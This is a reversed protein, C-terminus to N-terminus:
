VLEVLQKTTMVPDGSDRKEVIRRAIRRSFREEGYLYIINAIEDQSLTALLEAATPEDSDADMRM